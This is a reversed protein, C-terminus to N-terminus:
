RFVRGGLGRGLPLPFPSPSNPYKSPFSKNSWTIHWKLFLRTSGRFLFSGHVYLIPKEDARIWVLQLEFLDVGVKRFGIPRFFAGFISDGPGKSMRKAETEVFLPPLDTKGAYDCVVRRKSIKTINIDQFIVLAAAQPLPQYGNDHAMRLKLSEPEPAKQGPIGM